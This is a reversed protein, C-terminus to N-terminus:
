SKLQLADSTKAVKASITRHNDKGTRVSLIQTLMKALFDKIRAWLNKISIKEESRPVNLELAPVVSPICAAQMRDDVGQIGADVGQM